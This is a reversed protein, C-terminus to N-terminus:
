DNYSSMLWLSKSHREIKQITFWAIKYSLFCITLIKQIQLGNRDESNFSVNLKNQFFGGSIWIKWSKWVNQNLSIKILKRKNCKVRYIMFPKVLLLLIFSLGLPFCMQKANTLKKKNSIRKNRKMKMHSTM